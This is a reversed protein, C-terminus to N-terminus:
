QQQNRQRQERRKQAGSKNKRGDGRAYLQNQRNSYRMITQPNSHKATTRSSHRLSRVFDRSYRYAQEERIDQLLENIESRAEIEAKVKPIDDHEITSWDNFDIARLLHDIVKDDPFLSDFADIVQATTLTNENVFKKCYGQVKKVDVRVELRFCAELIRILLTWDLSDLNEPILVDDPIKTVDGSAWIWKVIANVADPDAIEAPIRLTYNTTTDSIPINREAFGCFAVLKELPVSKIISKRGLTPHYAAVTVIRLAPPKVPTLDRSTQEEQAPPENATKNYKGGIKFVRTDIGRVRFHDGPM